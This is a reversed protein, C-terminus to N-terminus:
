FLQTCKYILKQQAWKFLQVVFKQIFICALIQLFIAIAPPWPPNEPFGCPKKPPYTLFGHGDVIPSASPPDFITSFRDVHNISAVM